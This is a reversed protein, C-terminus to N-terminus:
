QGLNGPYFYTKGAEHYEEIVMSKSTYLLCNECEKSTLVEKYLDELRGDIRVKPPLGCVLHIDSGGIKAGKEIIEDLTM